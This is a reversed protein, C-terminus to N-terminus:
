RAPGYEFETIVVTRTAVPDWDSWFTWERRDPYGWRNVEVAGTARAAPAQGAVGSQAGIAVHRSLVDVGNILMVDAAPPFGSFPNLVDSFQRTLVLESHGSSVRREVDGDGDYHYTITGDGRTERYLRGDDDYAYRLTEKQLQGQEDVSEIEAGDPRDGSGYTYRLTQVPAWSSDPLHLFRDHGRLRGDPRYVYDVRITSRWVLDPFNHSYLYRELRGAADYEFDGVQAFADGVRREITRELRVAGGKNPGTSDGCASLLGVVLAVGLRGAISRCRAAVM